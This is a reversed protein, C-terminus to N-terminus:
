ATPTGIQSIMSEVLLRRAKDTNGKDILIQASEGFFNIIREQSVGLENPRIFENQSMQLGGRLQALYESFGIQLILSESKGLKGTDSLHEAWALLQHLSEVYTSYWSFGHSIYQYREVEENSVKVKPELTELMNAKIVKLLSDVGALSEKCINLCNNLIPDTVFQPTVKNM